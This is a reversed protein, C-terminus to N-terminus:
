LNRTSKSPIKVIFKAGGLESPSVDLIGLHDSIIRHSISLGIGSSHKKTTYFPDFITDMLYKPVSPGSDCVNICVYDNESLTSIVIKKSNNNKMAESANTVLNLVVQEIMHYDANCKPLNSALNIDVQIGSKRLTSSSLNFAEEVPKNINIMMFNPEGPKSFDMVRKIVSEIKNSASQLQFLIKAVKEQNETKKCVKEMAKLYINIGSLPNRIEHAIGAAVRGLSTMKDQIRLLHELEKAQSIDMLNVLIADKGKREIKSLRSHVWKMEKRAENKEPPYLRFEIEVKGLQGSIFKELATKVEMIDDPHINAYDPQTFPDPAHGFQRMYEPNQYVIRNDQIISICTLSNEVLDRFRKESKELAARGHKREITKGIRLTISNILQKEEELFTNRGGDTKRELYGVELVGVKEKNSIIDKSLKSDTKAFNDTRFHQNGFIIQAYVLEPLQMASPILDVANQIIEELSANPREVLKSFAFVYKLEKVREKLAADTKKHDEERKIRYLGFAIDEAIEEVLAQEIDDSILEKPISVSLLGYVNEEYVLPVTIAGWDSYKISLPCDVCSSSPNKILVSTKQKLARQACDVMEGQKLIDLVPIFDKSIGSEAFTDFKGSDDLVVLWAKDYSRNKTLIDCIGKLLRDRDKEKVLLRNVNRVARLGLNLHEIKETHKHSEM